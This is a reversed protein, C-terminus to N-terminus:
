MDLEKDEKTLQDDEGVDSLLEVEDNDLYTDKYKAEIMRMYYDEDDNSEKKIIQYLSIKLLIPNKKQIKIVRFFCVISTEFCKETKKKLSSPDRRDVTSM